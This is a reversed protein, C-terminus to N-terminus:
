AQAVTVGFPSTSPDLLAVAHVSRSGMDACSAYPAGHSDGEVEAALFAAFLAILIALNKMRILEM